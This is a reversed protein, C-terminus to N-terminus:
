GIKGRCNDAACSCVFKSGSGDSSYNSTIEEGPVIAKIAVDCFERVETNNNCSHNVFREPPQLVILREEDFPHTYPQETESLLAFEQKRIIRSLDWRLVVEGPQFVRIAYLGMGHIPSRRVEVGTDVARDSRFAM